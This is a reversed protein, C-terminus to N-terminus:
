KQFPMNNWSRPPPMLPLTIFQMQPKLDMLIKKLIASVNILIRGPKKLANWDKFDGREDTIYKDPPQFSPMHGSAIVNLCAKLGHAEYIDATRYFSDKFGDDFSLTLIHSKEKKPFNGLGILLSGLISTKVFQRRKMIGPINNIIM